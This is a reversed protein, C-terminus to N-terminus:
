QMMSDELEVTGVMDKLGGTIDVVSFMDLISRELSEKSCVTCFSLKCTLIGTGTIFFGLVNSVSVVFLMSGNCETAALSLDFSFAFDVDLRQTGIGDEELEFCILLRGMPEAVPLGRLM